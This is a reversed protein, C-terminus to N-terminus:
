EVMLKKVYQNDGDKVKIFYLGPQFDANINIKGLSNFVKSLIQRGQIDFMNVVVENGQWANEPEIVFNGEAAPNPYIYLKNQSGVSAVFVPLVGTTTRDIDIITGYNNYYLYDVCVSRRNNAGGPLDSNHYFFYWQGKFEIISQHNTESSVPSNIIKEYVFPGLPSESTAYEITEYPAYEGLAAYSLYYLDNYKHVWPAEIYSSQNEGNIIVQSPEGDIEIMNSKLKVVECTSFGNYLYAQGVDDIFVTPDFGAILPKGIADKFPGVPSDAVAVGISFSEGTWMPVYWYFKGDRHVCQGAWADSAAWSFSEVSLKAGHDTWNVMDSSSFVHWDKMIFWGDSFGAEDHGTYLFVTDHYVLAAPDATFIHKIIPNDCFGTCAIIIAIILMMIRKM